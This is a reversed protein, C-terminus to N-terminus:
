YNCTQLDRNFLKLNKNAEAIKGRNKLFESFEKEQKLSLIRNDFVTEHEGIKRFNAM